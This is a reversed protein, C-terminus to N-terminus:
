CTAVKCVGSRLERLVHKRTRVDLLPDQQKFLVQLKAVNRRVHGRSVKQSYGNQNVLVALMCRDNVDEEM